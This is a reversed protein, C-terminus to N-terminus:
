MEDHNFNVAFKLPQEASHFSSSLQEMFQAFRPCGTSLICSYILYVLKAKKYVSIKLRKEKQEVKKQFRKKSGFRLVSM